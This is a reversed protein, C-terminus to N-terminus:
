NWRSCNRQLAANRGSSFADLRVDMQTGRCWDMPPSSAPYLENGVFLFSSHPPFFVFCFVVQVIAACFAYFQAGPACVFAFPLEM